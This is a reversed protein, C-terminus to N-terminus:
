IGVANEGGGFAAEQALREAFAGGASITYYSRKGVLLPHRCAMLGAGSEAVLAANQGRVVIHCEYGQRIPVM